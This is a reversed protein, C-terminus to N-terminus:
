SKVARHPNNTPTKNGRAVDNTHAQSGDQFTRRLWDPVDGPVMEIPLYQGFWNLHTADERYGYAWAEAPTTIPSPPPKKRRSM